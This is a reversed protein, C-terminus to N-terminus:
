ASFFFGEFDCVANEAIPSLEASKSATHAKFVLFLFSWSFVLAGGCRGGYNSIFYRDSQMTILLYDLLIKDRLSDTCVDTGPEQYNNSLLQLGDDSVDPPTVGQPPTDIM